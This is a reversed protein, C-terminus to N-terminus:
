RRDGAWASLGRKIVTSVAYLPFLVKPRHRWVFVLYPKLGHPHVFLARFRALRPARGVIRDVPDGKECVGIPRPVLGISLGAARARLGLDLDGLGHQFAPSVGGLRVLVDGSILVCNANFTDVRRVFDPDPRVLSFGLPRWSSSEVWGSYTVVSSDSATTAGVVIDLDEGTAADLMEKLFGRRFDVDDNFLLYYDPLEYLDVAAEFARRMGGSWFLSGTGRVVEAWPFRELIATGTGDSSGDDCVAAALRSDVSALERELAELARVTSGVRNFCTAVPIVNM